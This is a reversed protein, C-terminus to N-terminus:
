KIWLPLSHVIGLVARIMYWVVRNELCVHITVRSGALINYFVFYFTYGVYLIFFVLSFACGDYLMLYLIFCIVLLCCLIYHFIHCMYQMFYLTVLISISCLIGFSFYLQCVTDFILSFYSWCVAFFYLLFYM